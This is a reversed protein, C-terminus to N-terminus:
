GETLVPKWFITMGFNLVQYTDKITHLEDIRNIIADSFGGITKLNDAFQIVPASGSASGGLSITGEGINLSNFTLGEPLSAVISSIISVYSRSIFMSERGAKIDAVQAQLLDIGAQKEQAQAILRHRASLEISVANYNRELVSNNSQIERLSLYSTALLGICGLLMAPLLVKKLTKQINTKPRRNVIIQDLSLRRFPANNKGKDKEELIELLGANVAYQRIPWGALAQKGAALHEVNNGTLSRLYEFTKEDDLMEGTVFIRAPEKIPKAPRGGNYFDIMKQLKDAVHGAQDQLSAGEALSPVMHMGRPIGDVIMVINSCDIEFDVIIADKESTLRALALHPLDLLWPSIGAGSLAKILNDIPHRTIGTVLVQKEDHEAPFAQWSLYMEDPSISMEKKATRIVAENFAASEMAPLNLMRYSFPLGNVTCIVRGASLKGTKFLKKIERSIIEPQLILGNRVSGPPLIVEHKKVAAGHVALAKLSHASITLATISM